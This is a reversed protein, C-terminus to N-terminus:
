DEKKNIGINFAIANMEEVFEKLDEEDVYNPLLSLSKEIGEGLDLAIITNFIDKYKKEITEYLYLDKTEVNWSDWEEKTPHNTDEYKFDEEKKELNMTQILSKEEVSTNKEIIITNNLNMM